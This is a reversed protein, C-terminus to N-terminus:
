AIANKILYAAGVNAIMQCYNDEVLIGTAGSPNMIPYKSVLRDDEGDYRVEYGLSVQYPQASDPLVAMIIHKGWVSSLVDAQGEKASNYLADAIVIRKVGMAEALRDDPIGGIQNYKFGLADLMKPHYKLKNWVTFDMIATDPRAGCANRVAARADGFLGIPDSNTYDSLQSTGSLTTNNTLISTNSLTDALAKEKDLAVLTTIGITEDREADFPDLVNKYDEKTVMGELGHPTIVFQQTSRVQTEVRRFKGRGGKVTSEIRLHSNGYKGLLGTQQASRVRPLITGAVLGQPIYASSVGSLLKDVLAKLQSM